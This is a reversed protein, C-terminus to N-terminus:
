PKCKRDKLFAAEELYDKTIESAIQNRAEIVPREYQDFVKLFKSPCNFDTLDPVKTEVSVPTKLTNGNDDIIEATFRVKMKRAVKKYYISKINSSKEKLPLNWGSLYFYKM